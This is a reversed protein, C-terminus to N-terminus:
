REDGSSVDVVQGAVAARRRHHEPHGLLELDIPQLRLEERAIAHDELGGALREREVSDVAALRM